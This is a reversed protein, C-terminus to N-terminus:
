FIYQWILALAPLILAFVLLGRAVYPGIRDALSPGKAALPAAVQTTSEKRNWVFLYLLLRAGVVIATLAITLMYRPVILMQFQLIVSRYTVIPTLILLTIIATIILDKVLAIGVTPQWNDAAANNKPATSM